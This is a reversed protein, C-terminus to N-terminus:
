DTKKIDYYDAISLLGPAVEKLNEIKGTYIFKLMLQVVSANFKTIKVVGTRRERTPRTFMACFVPSKASLVIRSAKFVKCGIELKVDSFHESDFFQELENYSLACDCSPNLSLIPRINCCVTLSDTQTLQCLQKQSVYDSWGRNASNSFIYNSTLKKLQNNENQIWLDVQVRLISHNVLDQVSLYLGCNNQSDVEIGKPFLKISFKVDNLKEVMFENSRWESKFVSSNFRARFNNIIWHHTTTIPCVLGVLSVPHFFRCCVLLNPCQTFAISDFKLFMVCGYTNKNSITSTSTKTKSCIDNLTELCVECKLEILFDFHTPVFELYFCCFLNDVSPKPQLGLHFELSGFQPHELAHPESTWQDDTSAERYRRAFNDVQWTIRNSNDLKSNM